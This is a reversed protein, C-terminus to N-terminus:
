SKTGGFYPVGYGENIMLDNITIEDDINLKVNALLRGYKDFGICELFVLKDLILDSLKEKALIAKNIEIKRIKEPISKSPRMEASDYGFMRVKFKQYKGNHKFICHLTDGDYCKIIKSLHTEGKLSFFETNNKDYNNLEDITEEYSM